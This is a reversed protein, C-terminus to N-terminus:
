VVMALQGCQKSAKYINQRSLTGRKRITTAPRPRGRRRPSCPTSGSRADQCSRPLHPKCKVAASARETLYRARASRRERPRCHFHRIPHYSVMISWWGGGGAWRSLPRVVHAAYKTAHERAEQACKGWFHVDKGMRLVLQLRHILIM